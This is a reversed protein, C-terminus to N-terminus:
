TKRKESGIRDSNGACAPTIGDYFPETIFLAPQDGCVRPHDQLWPFPSPFPSSNGACAPTIGLHPRQAAASGATGRVRPPSGDDFARILDDLGQEGCVRPHDVQGEGPRDVPRRNGACAPTIWLGSPYPCHPTGTGRVRPPSGVLHIDDKTSADQEGCVRPHDECGCPIINAIRRNGACAPTIRRSHFSMFFSNATGRVRPPSGIVARSGHHVPQQEGCVRPHDQIQLANCRPLPRNGACAPTIRQKWKSSGSKPETGRVRPPSGQLTQAASMHNAQEGCVRPHDPWTGERRQFSARNGACAPTIRARECGDDRSHDTGRVRPPSGGALAPEYGEGQQEGCM